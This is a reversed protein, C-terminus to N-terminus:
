KFHIRRCIVGEFLTISTTLNLLIIMLCYSDPVWVKKSSHKSQCISIARIGYLISVIWSHWDITSLFSLELYDFFFVQSLIITIGKSLNDLALWSINATLYDFNSRYDKNHIVRIIKVKKIVISLSALQFTLSNVIFLFM